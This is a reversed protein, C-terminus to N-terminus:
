PLTPNGFLPVKVTMGNQSVVAYPGTTLLDPRSGLPYGPMIRIQRGPNAPDRFVEGYGTKSTGRTWDSPIRNRVQDLTLGTLSGPQFDEPGLIQGTGLSADGAANECTMLGLPDTQTTPNPVYTHPNPAPALGLPDPTLYRGTAPDYYRHNNYHLSTEPDAYQGPFRLPTTAGGPKWITAGWLTHQQYGALDGLHSLLESPAGILDTVIAYFRQDICPQPADRLWQRETQTIPTFTGPQYDWTTIRATGTEGGAPAGGGPVAGGGPPAGGGPLATAEEGTTAQEALTPGDWTFRTQATIAGDAALHQKAIRRGLPDYLYRWRSGDPTTVATLRDDADWTYHWTEPTRSLRARIRTTVRGQADHRYRIAGSRTILTGTYARPGQADAALAAGGTAPPPAPWSAATINGAPDYGYREAWDPGDVATVRGAPDLGFRRPGTLLDGVGTLHGGPRYRYTRHQLLRGAGADAPRPLGIGSGTSDPQPRGAAHARTRATAAPQATLAQGTLRHAPDWQQALTVEGPLERLIERGATDYGFRIAKGGATLAVPRGTPDYDWCSEAGSPTVRRVRRGAADYVSTVTNGNCTEAVVRGVPDRELRIHAAASAAHVLRGAPDYGFVTVAGESESRVLNGLSDYRYAVGQGAGGARGTLQGAADYAYRTSAGNFDTEATLRGAPDWHYRWTLGGPGTVTTLRLATDYGFELRAGDPGTRAAVLDFCTYEARTLGGAPDLYGILNGEGDYRFREAAGDPLDRLTLKGEVSWGLRTVAGDPGTVATVRGFEDREYRTVQGGPGTVAVPLGAADCEVETTHGAADTITALHGRGDYGFRTIAGDPGALATRNGRTDYDQRWSAGDPGTVVVPLDLENYRAVAASGDPRIVAALNGRDDYRYGTVRGLPDTRSLLRGYQDWSSRTVYGLPDTEATVQSRSNLQYATVAGAAGTCTTVRNEEDYGFWCSLAGGPGEGRVCRGREDYTYRYWCGGRDTWGTLRGADDHGMRLPRGSSNVVEALDGREDYAYRVLEVEGGGAGAGALFLGAVRGRATAVRIQYGGSHGISAPAGTADYSFTIEDGARGTVSVLPLVGAGSALVPHGARPAFRWVLGAQPDTVTYGGGVRALPWRAGHSPLVPEGGAAPHPYCLVVGDAAAFLVGAGDVELRQDLTSAWSRGFWRGARYASRHARGVVLALVGALSVDDQRVVVQGSAVDVPDGQLAMDAPGRAAGAADGAADRLGSSGADAGAGAAVREGADAAADAATGAGDTGAALAVNPVLKGLAQAPDGRWGSGLMGKVLDEPHGADHVLGALTGSLGQAYQPLHTLNYPDAPDLSRGFRVLDGAGKVVGGTFDLGALQGASGADEADDLLRRAFSPETPALDAAVGIKAQAGAAAQDRQGRARALVSRAEERLREGPDSLTGPEVPRAGPDKGAALAGDYAQAARNYHSVRQAYHAQAAATARNGEEYLDGARGAQAQASAVTEGFSLLAAAAAGCASQADGWRKPQPWYRSRFAEAADGTWRATDIGALGTATEGFAGSLARLRAASRSIAGPDGHILETFDVTQGLQLEAVVAGLDDGVLDGAADVVQGAGSLGVADLGDGVARAGADIMGGAAREAGAVLREAGGGLAEVVSGFWGM